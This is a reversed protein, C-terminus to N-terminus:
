YEGGPLLGGMGGSTPVPMPARNKLCAPVPQQQPDMSIVEVSATLEQQESALQGGLVVAFPDSILLANYYTHPDLAYAQLENSTNRPIPEPAPAPTPSPGPPRAPPRAPPDAPPNCAYVTGLLLAPLISLFQLFHVM